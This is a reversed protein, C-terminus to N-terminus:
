EEVPVEVLRQNSIQPVMKLLKIKKKKCIERIQMEYAKEIKAGLYVEKAVPMPERRSHPSPMFFARWENEHKWKKSKITLMHMCDSGNIEDVDHIVLSSNNKYIVPLTLHTLNNNQAKIDYGICFGKQNDAYYAWMLLNNYQSCFCCINYRNRAYDRQFNINDAVLTDMERKLLEIKAHLLMDAKLEELSGGFAMTISELYENSSNIRRQPLFPYEIRLRDYGKQLFNNKADEFIIEIPGEFIDNFERPPSSYLFDGDLAALTNENCARYKYLYTPMHQLKMECARAMTEQTRSFGFLLEEYEQLWAMDDHKEM